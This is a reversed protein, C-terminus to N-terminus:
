SFRWSHHAWIFQNHNTMQWCNLNRGTKDYMIRSSIAHGATKWENMDPALFFGLSAVAKDIVYLRCLTGNLVSISPTLPMIWIMNNHMTLKRAFTLYWCLYWVPSVCYNWVVFYNTPLLWREMFYEVHSFFVHTPLELQSSWRINSMRERSSCLCVFGSGFFFFVLLNRNTETWFLIGPFRRMPPLSSIGLRSTYEVLLVMNRQIIHTQAIVLHIWTLCNSLQSLSSVYVFCDFLTALHLNLMDYWIVLHWLIIIIDRDSPHLQLQLQLTNLSLSELATSARRVGCKQSYLNITIAQSITYKASQVTKEREGDGAVRRQERHIWCHSSQRVTSYEHAFM